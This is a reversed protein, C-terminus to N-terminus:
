GISVNGRRSRNRHDVRTHQHLEASVRRQTFSIAAGGRQNWRGDAGDKPASDVGAYVAAAELGYAGSPNPIDLHYRRALTEMHWQHTRNAYVAKEGALLNKVYDTKSEIRGDSHVFRLQDSMLKALAVADTTVRIGGIKDTDHVRDTAGGPPCSYGVPMVSRFKYRGQADTVVLAFSM